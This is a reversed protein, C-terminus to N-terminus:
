SQKGTVIAYPFGNTVILRTVTDDAKAKKRANFKCAAILEKRTRLIFSRSAHAQEDKVVIMIHGNTAVMFVGGGKIPEIYIGELYYRVDGRARALDLAAIYKASLDAKVNTM